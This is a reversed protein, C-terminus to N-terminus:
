VWFPAPNGLSHLFIFADGIAHGLTEGCERVTTCGGHAGRGVQDFEDSTIEEFSYLHERM